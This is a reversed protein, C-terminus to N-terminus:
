AVARQGQHGSMDPWLGGVIGECLEAVEQRLREERQDLARGILLGPVSVVLGLQTTLLAEAVGGAIGGGQTFLEMDGLSKFTEIMGLVTGLLGLLPALTVTVRVLTRGEGLEALVPHLHAELRLADLRGEKAAADLARLMRGISGRGATQGARWLITLTKHEGRALNWARHAMGAWLLFACGALPAMVAGGSAWLNLVESAIASM